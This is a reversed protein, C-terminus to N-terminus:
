DLDKKKLCYYEIANTFFEPLDQHINRYFRAFDPHQSYMRGLGLVAEDSYHSFHELWQRWQAVQTQIEASGSGKNMNDAIAQFIRNGEIQLEGFKTKGMKVVRAESDKLTDEGWRERVEKRYKEIQKESFCQYYDKIEMAKEGKLQQITHDVTKILKRTRQARKILLTRHSQLAEIVDFDPRCTIKKIDNLNFGLERFFMIQQLSLLDKENYLRYGAATHSEPKLLGVEDYYHLTRVSVGAMIALKNVTYVMM